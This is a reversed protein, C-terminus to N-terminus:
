DVECFGSALAAEKKPQDRDNVRQKPVIRPKIKGSYIILRDVECFGSALAPEKEKVGRSEVRM